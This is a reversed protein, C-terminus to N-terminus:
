GFLLWSAGFYGDEVQGGQRIGVAEFDFAVAGGCYDGVYGDVEDSV